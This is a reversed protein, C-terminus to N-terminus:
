VPENNLVQGDMKLTMGLNDDNVDLKDAPVFAARAQPSLITDKEYFYFPLTREALPSALLANCCDKLDFGKTTRVFYDVVQMWFVTMTEHYGSTATNQGGVAINYTSIALRIQQLAEDFDFRNLYWVAGTLHAAHTWQEKPLTKANFGEILTDIDSADAYFANM